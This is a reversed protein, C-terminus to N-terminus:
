CLLMNSSVPNLFKRRPIEQLNDLHDNDLQAYLGHSSCVVEMVSEIRPPRREYRLTGPQRQLDCPTRRVQYRLPFNGLRIDPSSLHVSVNAQVVTSLYLLRVTIWSLRKM